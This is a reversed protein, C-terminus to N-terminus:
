LRLPSQMKKLTSTRCSHCVPVLVQMALEHHMRQFTALHGDDLVGLQHVHAEASSCDLDGRGVIGIVVGSALAVVQLADVDQVVIAPDVGMPALKSPLRAKLDARCARGLVTLCSQSWPLTCPKDGAFAKIM